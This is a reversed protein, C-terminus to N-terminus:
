GTAAAAASGTRRTVDAAIMFRVVAANPTTAPIAFRRKAGGQGIRIEIPQDKQGIAYILTFPDCRVVFM